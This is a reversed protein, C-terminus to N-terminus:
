GMFLNMMPIGIVLVLAFELLIIMGCYKYIDKAELWEKNGFLMAAFPSAAPTEMACSLVFFISLSVIPAANIGTTTCYSLIVPQLIMGIVLSNCVNTLVCLVVMLFIIFTVTSMGTFLPSLLQNLFPTIGTNEATLVSGILIASTCLFFSSWAVNTKMTGQIDVVPKGAIQIAALVAVFTAAMGTSNAKLFAMGPLTPFWSPILMCLVYVVYAIALIKQHISMQPLPNKKLDDIKLSKLKSVDPHIVYKLFIITIALFVVGMILTSAFYMGDNLEVTNNSITRYNTLLALPNGAYPPVPFGLMSGFVVMIVALKPYTEKNTYGLQQFIDYMVPWFLFIPAFPGGLFVAMLLCGLSIVFTLLWPKGESVKRTLFWRGIYPTIKERVLAGSFVMMFLMQVVTPNGFAEKIVGGMNSYSSFGIMFISFISAWTPDVTTWLYLTGIFIGLVEMGTETIPAVPPFMRIIFMIAIGIISNIMTASIGGKSKSM